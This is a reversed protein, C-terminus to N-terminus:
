PLLGGLNGGGLIHVHFHPVEQNADAGDNTILRYGGEKLGVQEVVKAVSQFFAAVTTVDGQAFESFARVERKPIVLIHVPAKPAIDRFALAIDDEYVADCPIEKRLIKAFINDTDYM